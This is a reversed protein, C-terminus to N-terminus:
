WISSVEIQNLELRTEDTTILEVGGLGTALVERVLKCANAVYAASKMGVGDVQAGVTEDSVNPANERKATHGPSRTLVFALLQVRSSAHM